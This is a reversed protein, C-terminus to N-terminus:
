DVDLMSAFLLRRLLENSVMPGSSMPMGFNDPLLRGTGCSISVGHCGDFLGASRMHLVALPTLDNRAIHGFSHVFDSITQIDQELIANFPYLPGCMRSNENLKAYRSGKRYVPVSEVKSIHQISNLMTVDYRNRLSGSVKGRRIREDKYTGERCVRSSGVLVKPVVLGKEGEESEEASNRKENGHVNM